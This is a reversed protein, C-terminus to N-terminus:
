MYVYCNCKKGWRKKQQMMLIQVYNEINNLLIEKYIYELNHRIIGLERDRGSGRGGM